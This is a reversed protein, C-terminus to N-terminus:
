YSNLRYYLIIFFSSPKQGGRKQINIQIIRDTTANQKGKSSKRDM